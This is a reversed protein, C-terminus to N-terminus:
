VATPFCNVIIAPFLWLMMGYFHAYLVPPCVPGGRCIAIRLNRSHAILINLLRWKLHTILNQQLNHKRHLTTYKTYVLSMFTCSASFYGDDSIQTFFFRSWIPLCFFSLSSYIFFINAHLWKRIVSLIIFNM